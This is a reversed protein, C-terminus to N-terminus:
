RRSHVGILILKTLQRKILQLRLYFFIIIINMSSKFVALAFERECTKFDQGSM